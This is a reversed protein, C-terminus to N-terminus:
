DFQAAKVRPDILGYVIDLVLTAMLVMVTIILTTASILPYDAATVGAYMASGLGPYSFIIEAVLAGGVMTGISLALGTVQPLMANRFVYGVIKSDKIGLFRAYKVYDANLEYISMSRMGIAQGGISILVISWFPLQYHQIVSKIFAWSFNPIMDFAYGGAIPFWKLNVAFLILLMVAMGFAPVNGLFLFAPLLVKDFGKRIYAALAGLINGLLWGVIIAPFQLCVTWMIASGIIDSVPRPYQSFSTGFDGKLANKVFRFFQEHLPLNTGFEEEFRKYIEQVASADTMGQAMKGTIASVPDVPMMRPLFFNLIVAVVFTIAFWLFKKGFYKRYGKM